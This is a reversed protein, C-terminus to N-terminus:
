DRWDCTTDSWQEALDALQAAAEGGDAGRGVAVGLLYVAVIAAPKAVVRQVDKALKVIEETGAEGVDVGLREAAASTWDVLEDMDGSRTKGFM